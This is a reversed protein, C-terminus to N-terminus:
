RQELYRSPSIGYSSKFSKSFYYADTYGIKESLEVITIKPNEDMLKRAAELRINIIYRSLSIGCEKKFINSLYSSNVGLEEAVLNLSLENLYYNEEIYRRADEVKRRGSPLLHQDILAMGSKLIACLQNKIETNDGQSSLRSIIEREGELRKSIDIGMQMLYLTFHVLIDIAIYFTTQNGSDKQKLQDFYQEVQLLVKDYEKARLSYLLDAPRYTISQLFSALSQPEYYCITGSKSAKHLVSYAEQYASHLESISTHIESVGGYVTEPIGIEENLNTCLSKIKLWFEEKSDSSFLIVLMNKEIYLIEVKPFREQILEESESALCKDVEQGKFCLNLICLKWMYPLNYEMWKDYNEEASQFGAIRELLFQEKERQYNERQLVQINESQLWLETLKNKIRQLERILEEPDLPKLIFSVAGLQLAEKAYEFEGYATLILIQADPLFAKIQRSVEIGNIFPINIDMIIIDPVLDQSKELAQRGNEAEGIVIMELDEWPVSSKVLERQLYEDDVVLVKIVQNGGEQLQM